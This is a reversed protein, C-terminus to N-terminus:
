SASTLAPTGQLPQAGEPFAGARAPGMLDEEVLLKAVIRLADVEKKVRTLEQQKVRLLQGRDNM